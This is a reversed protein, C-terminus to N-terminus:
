EFHLLIFAKLENLSLNSNIRFTYGKKINEENIKLTTDLKFAGSQKRWTISKTPFYPDCKKGGKYFEENFNKFITLYICTPSVDIFIMNESKWPTEGLEHQFNHSSCGQHSTKIEVSKNLIVGDGHGGGTKKTKSGDIDAKINCIDCIKQIYTEGVNGVNNSQLNVLNKYQSNAWIDMKNEKQKQNHIMEIFIDNANVSYINENIQPIIVNKINDMNTYEMSVSKEESVKLYKKSFEDTDVEEWMQDLDNKISDYADKNEEDEECNFNPKSNSMITINANENLIRIM